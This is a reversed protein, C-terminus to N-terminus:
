LGRAMRDYAPSANMYSSVLSELNGDLYDLFEKMQGMLVKLSVADMTTQSVQAPLLLLLRLLHELGYKDSPVMTPTEELLQSYQLREFRYLLNFRLMKDFYERLGDMAERTLSLVESPTGTETKHTYYDGLITSVPTTNELDVLKHDKTMFEWDDVLICKLQPRLPMMIEYINRSEVKVRKRGLLGNSPRDHGNSVSSKSLPPDLEALKRKKKEQFEREAKKREVDPELREIPKKRANRLARSLGLNDDNFEMIRENSVWEDWKLSWGKYHLFYADVDLLFGPIKNLEMPETTGEGIEVFLKGKEHYKLVKAEYVLPGHYALVRTGPRFKEPEGM